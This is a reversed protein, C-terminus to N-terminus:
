VKPKGTNFVISRFFNRISKSYKRNSWSYQRQCSGQQSGSQERSDGRCKGATPKVAPLLAGNLWYPPFITRALCFFQKKRKSKAYKKTGKGHFQSFPNGTRANHNQFSDGTFTCKATSLQSHSHSDGVTGCCHVGNHSRLMFAM